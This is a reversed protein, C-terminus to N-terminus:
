GHIINQNGVKKQMEETGTAVADDLERERSRLEAAMIVALIEINRMNELGCSQIHELIANFYKEKARPGFGDM